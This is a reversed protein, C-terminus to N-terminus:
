ATGGLHIAGKVLFFDLWDQPEADRAPADAPLEAEGRVVALALLLAREQVKNLHRLQEFSERVHPSEIRLLDPNVTAEPVRGADVRPSLRVQFVM